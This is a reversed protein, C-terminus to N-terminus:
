QESVILCGNEKLIEINKKKLKPENEREVEHSITETAIVLWVYIASDNENSLKRIEIVNSLSDILVDHLNEM